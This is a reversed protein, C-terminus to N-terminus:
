QKLLEGINYFYWVQLDQLILKNFAYCVTQVFYSNFVKYLSPGTRYQM